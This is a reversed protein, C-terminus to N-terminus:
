KKKWKILIKKREIAFINIQVMVQLVSSVLDNAVGKRRNGVGIQSNCPSIIKGHKNDVWRRHYMKQCNKGGDSERRYM